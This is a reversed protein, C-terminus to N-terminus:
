LGVGEERVVDQAVRLTYMDGMVSVIYMDETVQLCQELVFGMGCVREWDGSVADLTLLWSSSYEAYGDNDYWAGAPWFVGLTTPGLRLRPCYYYELADAQPTQQPTLPVWGGGESFSCTSVSLGASTWWYWVSCISGHSEFAISNHKPYKDAEPRTMCTQFQGTEPDLLRTEGSMTLIFLKGGLEECHELIGSPKLDPSIVHRRDQPEKQSRDGLRRRRGGLPNDLGTVLVKDLYEQYDPVLSYAKGTMLTLHKRDLRTVIYADARETYAMYPGDDGDKVTYMNYNDLLLNPGVQTLLLSHPELIYYSEANLMKMVNIAKLVGAAIHMRGSPEFGDYAIPNRNEVESCRKLLKFLQHSESTPLAPIVEGGNNAITTLMDVRKAIEADEPSLEPVVVVDVAPATETAPLTEAPTSM